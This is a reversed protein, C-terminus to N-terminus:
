REEAEGERSRCRAGWLRCHGMGFVLAPNHTTHASIEMNLKTNNAGSYSTANKAPKTKKNRKSGQM